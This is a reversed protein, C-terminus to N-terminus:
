HSSLGCKDTIIHQNTQTGWLETPGQLTPSWSVQWPIGVKHCM